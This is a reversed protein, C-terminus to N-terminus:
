KQVLEELTEVAFTDIGRYVIFVDLIELLIAVVLVVSLAKTLNIMFFTYQVDPYGFAGALWTWYGSTGDVALAAIDAAIWWFLAAVVGAIINGWLTLNAWDSSVSSRSVIRTGSEHPFTQYSVVKKASKPSVGRLSGHEISVHKPPEESVIKCGRELLITKLESYAEEIELDVSREPLIPDGSM